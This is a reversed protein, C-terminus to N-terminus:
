LRVLLNLLELHSPSPLGECAREDLSSKLKKAFSSIDAVSLPLLMRTMM